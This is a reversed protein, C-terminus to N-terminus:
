GEPSWVVIRKLKFLENELFQEFTLQISHLHYDRAMQEILEDSVVIRKM